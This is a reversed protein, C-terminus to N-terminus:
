RIEYTVTVNSTITNEGKPLEPSPASADTMAGGMAKEAYYIPYGGSSESFNVIRVLRVGLQRALVKAKSKADMIAKARAETKLGDEDDISFNPGQMDTVGITGLGDIIEPVDDTDRIKVSINQSVEYGIIKPQRFPCPGTYCPPTSEYQPYSSYNETKIDKEEIGSKELFDLVKSVTVSTKDQAAKLTQSQNRVSFSVTAIDPVAFIEGTGSFSITNVQKSEEGIYSYAKMESAIKVIFFIAMFGILVAVMKVVPNKFNPEIIM